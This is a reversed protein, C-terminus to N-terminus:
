KLVEKTASKHKNVPNDKLFKIRADVKEMVTNLWDDLYIPNNKEKRAWETHCQVLGKYISERIAKWNERKSERYTPGKQM